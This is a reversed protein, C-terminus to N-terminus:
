RSSNILTIKRGEFEMVVKELSIEEVKAGQITDEVTLIRNNILAYGKDQQFFVGNLTLTPEPIQPIPEPSPLPKEEQVPALIKNVPTVIPLAPSPIAPKVKPRTLLGFIMNGAFLGILIVLIYILIPKPKGTGKTILEEKDSSNKDTTKEVKKLADYIISM